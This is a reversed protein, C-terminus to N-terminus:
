LMGGVALIGTTRCVPGQPMTRAFRWEQIKIFQDLFDSDLLLEPHHEEYLGPRTLSLNPHGPRETTKRDGFM